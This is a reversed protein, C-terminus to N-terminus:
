PKLRGELLAANLENEIQTAEDHRGAKMLRVIQM